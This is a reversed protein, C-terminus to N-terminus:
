LKWGEARRMQRHRWEDVARVVAAGFAQLARGEPTDSDIGIGVLSPIRLRETRVPRSERKVSALHGSFREM